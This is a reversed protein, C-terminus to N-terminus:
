HGLNRRLPDADFGGSSPEVGQLVDPNYRDDTDKAFLAARHPPSPSHHKGQRFFCVAGEGGRESGGRELRARYPEPLSSPLGNPGASRAKRPSGPRRSVGQTGGHERDTCFSFLCPDRRPKGPRRGGLPGAAGPMDSPVEVHQGRTLFCYVLGRLRPLPPDALFASDPKRAVLPCRGGSRLAPPPHGDQHRATAAQASSRVGRVM